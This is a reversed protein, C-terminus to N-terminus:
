GKPRSKARNAPTTSPPAAARETAPAVGGQSAPSSAHGTIVIPKCGAITRPREDLVAAILPTVDAALGAYCGAAEIANGYSTSSLVGAAAFTAVFISRTWRLVIRDESTPDDTSPVAARVCGLAATM